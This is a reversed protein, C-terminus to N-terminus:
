ADDDGERVTAAVVQAQVVQTAYAAMGLVEWNALGESNGSAITRRGDVELCEVVLVWRVPMSGDHQVLVSSLAAQISATLAEGLGENAM